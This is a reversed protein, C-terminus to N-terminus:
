EKNLWTNFKIVNIKIFYVLMYIIFPITLYAFWENFGRANLEKFQHPKLHHDELMAILCLLGIFIFIGFWIAFWIGHLKVYLFIILVSAIINWFKVSKKM